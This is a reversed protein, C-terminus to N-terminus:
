RKKKAKEEDQVSFGPYPDADHILTTTCQVEYSGDSM